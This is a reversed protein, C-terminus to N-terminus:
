AREGVVMIPFGLPNQLMVVTWGEITKINTERINSPTNTLATQILVDFDVWREPKLMVIYDTYKWKGSPNFFQIEWVNTREGVSEVDRDHQKLIARADERDKAVWDTM